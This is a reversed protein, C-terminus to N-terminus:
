KRGESKLAATLMQRILREDDFPLKQEGVWVKGAAKIMAETPELGATVPQHALSLQADRCSKEMKEIHQIAECLLVDGTDEYTDRLKQLTPISHDDFAGPYPEYMVINENEPVDDPVNPLAKGSTALENKSQESPPMDQAAGLTPDYRPPSIFDDAWGFHYYPAHESIHNYRELISGDSMKIRFHEIGDWRVGLSRYAIPIVILEADAAPTTNSM